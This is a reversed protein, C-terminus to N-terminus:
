NYRRTEYHGQLVELLQLDTKAALGQATFGPVQVDGDGAQDGISISKDEYSVSSARAYLHRTKRGRAIAKDIDAETLPVYPSVKAKIIKM